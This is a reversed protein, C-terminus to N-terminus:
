KYLRIEGNLSGIALGGAMTTAVKNFEPNTKYIKEQASKDKKNLRPDLTFIAKENV